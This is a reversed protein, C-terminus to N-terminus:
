LRNAPILAPAPAGVERYFEAARGLQEDSEAPRGAAALDAAARARALAEDPLSGIRAFIGAARPWDGDGAAEAADLWRTRTPTRGAVPGLEGARGLATLAFALDALWFSALSLGRGEDLWLRLLEDAAPGAEDTRGAAALAHTEFALVPLLMQPAGVARALGSAREVDALAREAGERALAMKARLLLADVEHLSAGGEDEPALLRGVLELASGWEGRWYLEYAHEVDLWGLAIADGFREAVRRSEAYLEFARPLDGLDATISALNNYGRAAQPSNAGAAVDVSERLDRLGDLDGTMVRSFGRTSLAHARLGALGLAEAMELAPGAAAMAEEAEDVALHLSASSALVRAKSRSPPREALLSAAHDVHAAAEERRGHGIMLLDALLVEAEAAPELEGADLLEAAAEALVDAGSGEARFLAQGYRLLLRPRAADDEPWSALAERYFRVAAAYASLGHARDGAELLAHRARERLEDLDRGAARAFQLASLYHHAILDALDEARDGALGELWEAALRHAEARRSRPIQSYAVDRVLVHRFVLATEGAVSSRRERRVYEKRELRLLGEEVQDRPRDSVATLSGVWFVKGVVAASQLLAKEEAALTDLRAAIIGQVTEPLPLDPGAYPEALMRVYEEAYLPNGGAHALLRGARGNQVTKEALLANLLQETEDDSLPSLSVTVASRKGGGWGPRRELLEPRSTCVVLIPVGSSWDVLHDVFDLLGDDAWHLDEFVLVLPRQEALAEFFRRWAGFAERRYDGADQPPGGLGVLPRLHELVWWAEVDDGVVAAVATRLKDAAAESADSELIGAQAKVMEGLAWFSVGEGYPLSRGQRWYRIATSDKDLASWLEFLLRSKGIGPSGVLTVLQPSREREARSVADRLLQLEDARGVLEAGGKFAIDVGLRTRPAVVEWVPVPEAKGKAHVPEADRYEIVASTARYTPEDVLIGDVPAASQLRSCTNVVDGTAMGEGEKPRASLAIMAEGTTVGIRVHLGLTPDAVNLEGLADRAALAARVAREPDDEHALPAGFLAVVADGIFKEVTGGFRELEAKVRAHYPSLMRRVDEPDLKEARGTFGVLDAFLVSVVKREELIAPEAEGPATAAGCRTCFALELAVVEGCAPCARGLQEGCSGCFLAGARNEFGCSACEAM